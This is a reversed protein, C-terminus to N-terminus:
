LKTEPIFDTVDISAVFTLVVIAPVLLVILLVIPALIEIGRNRKSM